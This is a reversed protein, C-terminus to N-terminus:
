VRENHDGTIFMTFSPYNLKHPILVPFLDNSVNLVRKEVFVIKLMDVNYDLVYYENSIMHGSQARQTSQPLLYNYQPSMTKL